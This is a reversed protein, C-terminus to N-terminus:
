ERLLEPINGLSLMEGLLLYTQLVLAKAESEEVDSHVGVSVRDYLFSLTKFMREKRSDSVVREAVYIRLRNKVQPPGVEVQKGDLMAKSASPPYVANAFSDIVRRCTLLAQSIAEADPNSLRAFIHPLKSLADGARAALLGDVQRKYTEFIAEAQGSLLKEYYLSAAFQQILARVRSLISKFRVIQRAQESVQDQQGKLHMFSWDGTPTFRKTVDLRAELAEIEAEQQAASGWYGEKKEYNTWRVTWTMYKLSTPDEMSYGFREFHLWATREDDGVLRALRSAKFVLAEATTRLLEADDLTEKALAVIEESPSVSGPM